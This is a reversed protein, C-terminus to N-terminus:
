SQGVADPKPPMATEYMCTMLGTAPGWCWLWARLAEETPPWIWCHRAGVYFMALLAAVIAGGIIGTVFKAM